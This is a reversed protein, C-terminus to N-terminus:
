FATTTFASISINNGNMNCPFTAVRDLLSSNATFDCTLAVNGSTQILLTYSVLNKLNSPNYTVFASIM